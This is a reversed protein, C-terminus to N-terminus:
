PAGKSMYMKIQTLFLNIEAEKGKLTQTSNCVLINHLHLCNKGFSQFNLTLFYM